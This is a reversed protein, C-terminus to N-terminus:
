SLLQINKKKWINQDKKVQKAFFDAEKKTLINEMCFESLNSTKAKHKNINLIQLLPVVNNM